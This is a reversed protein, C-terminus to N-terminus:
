AEPAVYETLAALYFFKKKSKFQLTWAKQGEKTTFSDFAPSLTVPICDDGLQVYSNNVLCDADKIFIIADDNLADKISEYIAPNDGLIVVEATHEIEQSGEDGVPASTVKVSHIKGDWKFAGKDDAWVHATSIKVKDGLAAPANTPRQMTEIDAVPSYWLTPKYGGSKGNQAAKPLNDYGM